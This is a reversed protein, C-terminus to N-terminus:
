HTMLVPVTMHQIVHRSVGGLIVERFRSHGYAGMVVLDAGRDAAHNLLIDGVDMDAASTRVIQAQIGHRALYAAIRAGQVEGIREPDVTLVHVSRAKELIPLAGAMARAAERSANWAVVVTDGVPKTVGAYPVVLLPRGAEMVLNDPLNLYEAPASDPDPQGIVTLDAYRAALGLADTPDGDATRWECRDARGSKAIAAHFRRSAMAVDQESRAELSEVLDSPLPVEAYIPLNIPPKVGMGILHADHRAALDAAAAVRGDASDTHDVHVLITKLAM